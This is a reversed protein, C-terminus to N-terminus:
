NQGRMRLTFMWSSDLFYKIICSVGLMRQAKPRLLVRRIGPRYLRFTVRSLPAPNM